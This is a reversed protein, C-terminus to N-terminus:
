LNSNVDNLEIKIINNYIKMYEQHTYLMTGFTLEYIILDLEELSKILNKEYYTIFLKIICKYWSQCNLSDLFYKCTLINHKRAFKNYTTKSPNKTTKFFNILLVVNKPNLLCKKVHKNIVHYSMSISCHPCTKQTMQNYISPTTYNM